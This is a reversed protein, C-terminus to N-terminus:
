WPSEMPTGLGSFRSSDSNPFEVQSGVRVDGFVAKGEKGWEVKQLYESLGVRRWSESM